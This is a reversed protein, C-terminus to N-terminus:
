DAEEYDWKRDYTVSEAQERVAEWLPESDNANCHDWCNCQSSVVEVSEGGPEMRTARERSYEVTIRADDCNPCILTLESM